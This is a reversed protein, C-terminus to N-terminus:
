GQSLIEDPADEGDYGREDCDTEDDERHQIERGAIGRASQGFRDVRL